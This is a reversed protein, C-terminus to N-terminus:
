QLRPESEIDTIVDNRRIFRPAIKSVTSNWVIRWNTSKLFWASLLFSWSRLIDSTAETSCCTYERDLSVVLVYHRFIRFHQLWYHAFFDIILHTHECSFTFLVKVINRSLSPWVADSVTVLRHWHQLTRQRSDLATVWCLRSIFKLKVAHLLHAGRTAKEFFINFALFIGALM